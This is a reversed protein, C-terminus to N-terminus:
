ESSAAKRRRTRIEKAHAQVWDPERPEERLRRGDQIMWRHLWSVGTKHTSEPRAYAPDCLAEEVTIFRFGRREMQDLLQDMLAANLSNAHLISIHKVPRGLAEVALDDFFALNQDSYRLYADAVRKRLADDGSRLAEAYVEAFVYDQTDITVPAVTYGRQELFASLETRYADSPGTRLQTHRYYRLTCGKEALVMRTVTEGRIVHEQYLSLPSGVGAHGFNHNGLELGADLWARLTDIRADVENRRFLGEENVFGVATIGRAKLAESIRAITHQWIPLPERLHPLDDFTLAVERSSTAATAARPGASLLLAVALALVARKLHVRM